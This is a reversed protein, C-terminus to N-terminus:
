TGAPDTLRSRKVTHMSLGPVRILSGPYPFALGDKEKFM